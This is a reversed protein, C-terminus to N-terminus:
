RDSQMRKELEDWSVYHRPHAFYGVEDDGLVDVGEERLKGAADTPSGTGDPYSWQPPISGGKALVRHPNEFETSTNAVRGVAQGGRAHGYVVQSIDGYTTFEGREVGKRLRRLAAQIAQDIVENSAFELAQRTFQLALPDLIKARASELEAYSLGKAPDETMPNFGYPCVPEPQKYFARAAM